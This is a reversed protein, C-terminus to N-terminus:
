KQINEAPKIKELSWFHCLKQKKTNDPWNFLHKLTRTNMQYFM